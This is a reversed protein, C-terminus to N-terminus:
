SAGGSGATQGGAGGGQGQGDGNQEGQAIMEGAAKVSTADAASANKQGQTVTKFADAAAGRIQEEMLRSQQDAQKQMAEARAMKNEAARSESVLMGQLDRAAFKAEIFKRQDVHDMDEPTLTQALMDIQQGRVEKAILSTAGRPIVDYDGGPAEEPNYLKNFQVLSWIVSQTFSDYNRVIDKFPLAADGRLMSAGAATRMPESPMKQFDGGTAPGIFTEMDAFELFMRVLQQLENLHGEFKIERVAPFQASPGDDDRYWLKWAEISTLDQDARLLRTNIELNPGTTVSANDLTMRTAACISLQSDRVIGPLGQGIPSTDDEDFNFVHVTKVDEGLTRWPNISAKIVYDEIFWIEADVDDALMNDPVDAGAERLSSASIPGKWIIVEYKERGTSAQTTTDAHISLGMTRLETEWSKPRHTGGPYQTLVQKIPKEFFDKRDALKRLASRGLVKRKFFGEGPATRASMDPYFDWVPLHEYMPKYITKEVPQFSAAVMQGTAPDATPAAQLAWGSVQVKRIYPGELVGIGYKIGSDVISRNLAIWDHTQDGGLELLQDKILKTLMEAQKEALRNVAEEVMEQTLQPPPAPQGDPGPPLNGQLEALLENVAKAVDDPSMEPSPSSNMEWNDENGPFMLNMLRSLMAICKIRTLRPYARSRNPALAREIEPDYVGLYQRLNKLWKQEAPIRESQYRQFLSKLKAGMQRLVADNLQRVPAPADVTVGPGSADGVDMPYPAQPTAPVSANATNGLQTIRAAM